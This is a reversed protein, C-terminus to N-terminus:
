LFDGLRDEISEPLECWDLLREAVVKSAVGEGSVCSTLGAVTGRTDFGIGDM